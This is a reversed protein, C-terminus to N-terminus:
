KNKSNMCKKYIEKRLRQETMLFCIAIYLSCWWGGEDVDDDDGEDDEDDFNSM